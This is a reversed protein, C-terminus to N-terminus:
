QSKKDQKKSQHRCNRHEGRHFTCESMGPNHFGHVDFRESSLGPIALGRGGIGATLDWQFVLCSM